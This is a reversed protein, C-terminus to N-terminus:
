RVMKEDESKEQLRQRYRRYFYAAMLFIIGIGLLVFMKYLKGTFRLDIFFVKCLTIGFLCLAAIRLPFIKKWIGVLLLGFGYGAWLLSLAFAARQEGLDWYRYLSFAAQSHLEVFLLILFLTWLYPGMGKEVGRLSEKRDTYLAAAYALTFLL